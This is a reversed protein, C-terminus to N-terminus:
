PKDLSVAKVKLSHAAYKNSRTSNSYSVAALPETGAVADVLPETGAAEELLGTRNRTVGFPTAGHTPKLWRVNKTPLCTQIKATTDSEQFRM